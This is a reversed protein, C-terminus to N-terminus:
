MTSFLANSCSGRSRAQRKYVDEVAAGIAEFGKSHQDIPRAGFNCGGPLAVRAHGFRGLQAGIFYYSARIRRM